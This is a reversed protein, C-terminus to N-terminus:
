KGEGALQEAEERLVTKAAATNTLPPTPKTARAYGAWLVSGTTIVLLLADVLRTAHEGFAAESVGFFSLILGLLGVLALLAARIVQSDLLPISKM